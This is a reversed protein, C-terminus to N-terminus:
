FDYVPQRKAYSVFFHAVKEIPVESAKHARTQRMAHYWTNVKPYKQLDTVERLTPIVIQTSALVKELIPYVMM